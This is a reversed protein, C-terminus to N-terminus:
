GEPHHGISFEEHLKPKVSQCPGLTRFHKPPNWKETYFEGKTSPVWLFPHFKKLFHAINTDLNSVWDRERTKSGPFGLNKSKNEPVPDTEWANKSRPYSTIEKSM